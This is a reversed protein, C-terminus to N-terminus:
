RPLGRGPRPTEPEPTQPTPRNEPVANRENPPATREDPPAAENRGSLESAAAEANASGTPLRDAEASALDRRTSRRGDKRDANAAGPPTTPSGPGADAVIPESDRGWPLHGRLAAAVAERASGPAYETTSAPILRGDTDLPTGPAGPTGWGRGSPGAGAVLVPADRGARRYRWLLRAAIRGFVRAALAGSHNPKTTDLIVVATFLPREAPAFGAFSSLYDTESYGGPVAKQATGTKGAIAFGSVGANRGTGEAVVGALIARMRAATRRSM